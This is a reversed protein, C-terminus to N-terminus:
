LLLSEENVCVMRGLDDDWYMDICEVIDTLDEVTVGSM